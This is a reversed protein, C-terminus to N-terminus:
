KPDGSRLGIGHGGAIHIQGILKVAEYQCLDLATTVFVGTLNDARREAGQLALCCCNSAFSAARRVAISSPSALPTASPLEKARTRRVSPKGLLPALAHRCETKRAQGFSVKNVYAGVGQGGPAFVLGDSIDVVKFPTALLERVVGHQAAGAIMDPGAQASHFVTPMDHKVPHARPRRLIGCGGDVCAAPVGNCLRPSDLVKFGIFYIEFFAGM